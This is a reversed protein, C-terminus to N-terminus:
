PFTGHGLAILPREGHHHGEPVGGPAHDLLEGPAQLRVPVGSDLRGVVRQELVDVDLARAERLERGAGVHGVLRHALEHRGELPASPHLPPRVRAIAPRPQHAQCGLARPEGTAAQVVDVLDLGLPLLAPVRGTVVSGQAVHELV